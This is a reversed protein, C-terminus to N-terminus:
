SVGTMDQVSGNMHMVQRGRLTSLRRVQVHCELGLSSLSHYTPTAHCWPVFIIIPSSGSFKSQLSRRSRLPEYWDTTCGPPSQGTNRRPRFVGYVRPVKETRKRPQGTPQNSARQRCM